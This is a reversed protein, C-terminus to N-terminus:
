NATHGMEGTGPQGHAKKERDKQGV